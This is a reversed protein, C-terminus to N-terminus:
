SLPKDNLIVQMKTMFSKAKLLADNYKEDGEYCIFVNQDLFNVPFQKGDKFALLVIIARVIQNSSGSTVAKGTHLMGVSVGTGRTTASTSVSGNNIIVEASFLDDFGYVKLEYPRLIYCAIKRSTQDIEVNVNDEIKGKYCRDIEEYGFSGIRESSVFGSGKLERQVQEYSEKAVPVLADFKEKERKRERKGVQAAILIVSGFIVAVVLFIIVLIM